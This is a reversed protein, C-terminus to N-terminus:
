IVLRNKTIQWETKSSVMSKAAIPAFHNGMSTTLTIKAMKIQATTLLIIFLRLLWNISNFLQNLGSFRTQRLLHGYGM